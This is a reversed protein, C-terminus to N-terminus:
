TQVDPLWAFVARAVRQRARHLRSRVTGPALNLRRGIEDYSLGEFAALLLIQRHPAPLRELAALMAASQGRALARREPANQGSAEGVGFATIASDPLDEWRVRRSEGRVRRRRYDNVFQNRLIAALWPRLAAGDARFTDAREWARILTEQVLDEAEDQDRTLAYAARLLDARFGTADRAPAGESM